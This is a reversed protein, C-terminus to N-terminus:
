GQGKLKNNNEIDWIPIKIICSLLVYLWHTQRWPWPLMRVEGLNTDAWHTPKFTPNSVFQCIHWNPSRGLRENLLVTHKNSHWSPCPVTSCGQDGETVTITVQHVKRVLSSREVEFIKLHILWKNQCKWNIYKSSLTSLPSRNHETSTWYRNDM